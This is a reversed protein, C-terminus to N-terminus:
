TGLELSWSDSTTTEELAHSVDPSVLVLPPANTVFTRRISISSLGALYALRIRSFPQHTFGGLGATSRARHTFSSEITLVTGDVDVTFTQTNVIDSGHADEIRLVLHSFLTTGGLLIWGTASGELRNQDADGPFRHVDRDVAVGALIQASTQVATLLLVCTLGAIALWGRQLPM